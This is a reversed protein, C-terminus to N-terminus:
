PHAVVTAGPMSSKVARLATDAAAREKFPGIRVRYLTAGGSRVPMVFADRNQSRLEGMLREATAQKSFSGVQVAWGASTPARPASALPQEKPPAAAPPTAAPSAARAVQTPPQSVPPLESPRPEVREDSRQPAAASPEDAPSEDAPAASPVTASEPNAQPAVPSSRAAPVSDEPPPARDDEVKAAAQTGPTASLDITYTKISTEGPAAQTAATGHRDPGSLMEPILIIGAAMLVAAGVLREKV